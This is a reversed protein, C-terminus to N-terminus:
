RHLEALRKYKYWVGWASNKSLKFGIIGDLFGLQILYMKIFKFFARMLAEITSSNKGKADLNKAAMDGYFKMKRFHSELTPYTYHLMRNKLTKVPQETIISEHLPKNNFAAVQRNFLRLPADNQWGCFRIMKGLYFSSRRIRYACNGLGRSVLEKIERQLQLTLEEDADISLILDYSASNVALQKTKGFGLWDSEIVLCNFKQCINVTEDTSGSDVVVIEDAWSVSNLCRVINKSENKTIITVSLKNDM